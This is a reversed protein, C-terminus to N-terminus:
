RKRRCAMAGCPLMALLVGPGPVFYVTSDGVGNFYESKALLNWQEDFLFSPGSQASVLFRGDPLIQLDIVDEGDFQDHALTTEGTNPDFRYVVRDFYSTYYVAGDAAIDMGTNNWGSIPTQSLLQGESDFASLLKTFQDVAYFEGNNKFAVGSAREFIEPTSSLHDLESNLFTVREVDAVIFRSSRPDYDLFTGRGMSGGQIEASQRIVNGDADVQIVRAVDQAPRGIFALYGDGSFTAGAAGGFGPISFRRVENLSGDWEVVQGGDLPTYFHGPVFQAQGAAGAALASAAFIAWIAWTRDHM